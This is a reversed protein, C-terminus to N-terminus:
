LYILDYPHPGLGIPSHSKLFLFLDRERKGWWTLACYSAAMQLGLLSSDGSVLDVLVKIKSKVAELIM